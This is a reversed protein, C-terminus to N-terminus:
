RIIGMQRMLITANNSTSGGPLLKFDFSLGNPAVTSEFHYNSVKGPHETALSCLGIDHTAVIGIASYGLLTEMISRTGQQKDGSNTGRLPEDLLIMYPLGPSQAATMIAGIRNLEARFYSIDDQVSDTVRMSTYLRVLPFSLARAPVPLGLGALVMNSGITRIFTSKGTMNAGTLLYFQENRGLSCDNGVANGTLLPHRLDHATLVTHTDNPQPYTNGPHNFAYVAHSVYVDLAILEEMTRLLLAKHKHRWSELRLLCYIDFLFLSNMLPGALSNNRSDFLNALKHFRTIQVLAQSCAASTSQLWPHTFTQRAVQEQLRQYKEVLRATRGVQANAKKIKQQFLLLLVWNVVVALPLAPHLTQILVSWIILTINVLPMIMIAIRPLLKNIFGDDAGLWSVVLGHDPAEEPMSLGAVRFDELFEPRAALDRIIDQRQLIAAKGAPLQQLQAALAASGNMTVTRCLLQYLSGKGFVDLDYTYPHAPDIYRAGDAFPHIDGTLAGLEQQQLLIHLQLLKEQEHVRSHMRVLVLFVATLLAAAIWQWAIGSNIALVLFVVTVLAVLLRLRSIIRIHTVVQTLLRTHKALQAEYFASPSLSM